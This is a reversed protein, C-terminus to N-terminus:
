PLVSLENVITWVMKKAAGSSYGARFKGVVTDNGDMDSLAEFSEWKGYLDIIMTKTTYAGSSTLANGTFKLRIVRETQARWVAKEAVSTGDHEFTIDLTIEDSVRKVFSFYTQGDAAFVPMWGTKFDLNMKLLTNSKLTTGAADTSPDIYLLGKSFLIDEVTPASVSATFTTTAIARGELTGSVEISKGTEGTLKLEKTFCYHMVEAQQNDGGEITYTTLDSTAISDTSVSQVNWTWIYGTGTGTDTTPTATYVGSQLFYPLQEYTASGNLEIEGGTKGIYTRNAGGLIGIAEEVFTVELNDKLVGMGRWVTTAADSSSGQTVEAALQILRLSTIGPSM